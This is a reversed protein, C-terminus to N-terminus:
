VVLPNQTHFYKATYIVKSASYDQAPIDNELDVAIIIPNLIIDVYSDNVTASVTVLDALTNNRAYIVVSARDRTATVLVKIIEKNLVDFDVSITYEVSSFNGVHWRDLLTNTYVQKWPGNYSTGANNRFLLTNKLGDTLYKKLNQM